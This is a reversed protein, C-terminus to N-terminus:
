LWGDNEIGLADAFRNIGTCLTMTELAEVIEEDTSGVTKLEAFEEDTIGHPDVDAKIAFEVLKKEKLTLGM